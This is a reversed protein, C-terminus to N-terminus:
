LENMSQGLTIIKTGFYQDNLSSELAINFIPIFHYGFQSIVISVM